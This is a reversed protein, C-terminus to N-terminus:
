RPARSRRDIKEFNTRRGVQHQRNHPSTISDPARESRREHTVIPANRKITTTTSRTTTTTIAATTNKSSRSKSESYSSTQRYRKNGESENSAESFRKRTRHPRSEAVKRLEKITNDKRQIENKATKYLISINRYAIALRHRLKKVQAAKVEANERCIRVEEQASELEQGMKHLRMDQLTGNVDGYLDDEEDGGGDMDEKQRPWARDFITNQRSGLDINSFSFFSSIRETSM